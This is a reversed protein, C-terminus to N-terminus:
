LTPSVQRRGSPSSGQSTSPPPVASPHSTSLPRPAPLASSSPASTLSGLTRGQPRPTATLLYGPLRRVWLPLGPHPVAQLPQTEVKSCRSPGGVPWLPHGLSMSPWGSHFGCLEHCNSYKGRLCIGACSDNGSHQSLLQPSAPLGWNRVASLGGRDGWPSKLGETLSACTGMTIISIFCPWSPPVPPRARSPPPGASPVVSSRFGWHDPPPSGVWARASLPAKLPSGLALPGPLVM